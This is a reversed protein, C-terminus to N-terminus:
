FFDLICIVRNSRGIVRGEGGRELKVRLLVKNVEGCQTLETAPSSVPSADWYIDNGKNGVRGLFPQGCCRSSRAWSKNIFTHTSRFLM